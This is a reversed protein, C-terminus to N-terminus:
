LAEKQQAAAEAYQEALRKVKDGEKILFNANKDKQHYRMVKETTKGVAWRYQEVTIVGSKCLPRIHEKVYAELKKLISDTSNASKNSSSTSKAERAENKSRLSNTENEGGSSKCNSPPEDDAVNNEACNKSGLESVTAGDMPRNMGSECPNLNNAAEEMNTTNSLHEITEDSIKNVLPDKESVNAEDSTRNVLLDKEPGNPEESEKDRGTDVESPKLMSPSNAITDTKVIDSIVEQNVILGEEINSTATEEPNQTNEVGERVTLSPYGEFGEEINSTAAKEANQPNELCEERVNVLPDGEVVIPVKREPSDPPSDSSLGARRLAEEVDDSCPTDEHTFSTEKTLEDISCETTAASSSAASGAEPKPHQRLVQSCLNIYVLKSNSREVIEKEINVADAVALETDATRRIVTSNTRRLYHETIRYLQARRVTVPVKNHRSSALKPRMDIPLQAMFPYKEKLESGEEPKDKNANSSSSANKRALVELAWQRKDRKNCDPQNAEKQSNSSSKKGTNGSSSVKVNSTGRSVVKPTKESLCDSKNTTNQNNTEVSSCGNLASLPKIDDKRPFVSADALYVRSLISNETGGKPEQNIEFNEASSNSFKKLLELVSQLTEIKEPKASSCRYKWFEVEWERAWTHKRRGTSTGYIKKTLNERVKGKKLLSKRARLLSPDLKTEVVEPKGIAARFATLLKGDFPEDKSSKLATDGVVERIEKRLKQVLISSENEKEARRMIKKVRPGSKDGENRNLFKEGDRHHHLRHQTGQVISMIDSPVSGEEPVYDSQDDEGIATDRSSTHCKLASPTSHSELSLNQSKVDLKAKKVPYDAEIRTQSDGKRSHSNVIDADFHANVSTEMLDEVKTDEQHMGDGMNKNTIGVKQDGSLTGVSARIPSNISPSYKSFENDVVDNKTELGGAIASFSSFAVSDPLRLSANLADTEPESTSAELASERIPSFELPKEMLVDSQTEGMESSKYFLEGNGTNSDYSSSEIGKGTSLDLPSEWPFKKSTETNQQAGVMSVVVATEGDDAISVSVKGAFSSDITVISNGDPNQKLFSDLNQQGEAPICRPCLWSKKQVSESNFGVCTAHYWIDCSDCAISTDFAVDDEATLLGTRIKCGGGDLCIVADEDIYYSPFSLTNSEGQVYWDNVDRSLSYEEAKISGTTEYVKM